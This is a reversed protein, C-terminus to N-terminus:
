PTLQPGLPKGNVLLTGKDLKFEGSLFQGDRVVYGSDVVQGLMAELMAKDQAQRQPQSDIMFKEIWALPVKAQGNAYAKTFLVTRLDPSNAEEATVGQTGFATSLSGLVGDMEIDFKDISFEPNHPLLAAMSAQTQELVAEPTAQSECMAAPTGAQQMWQVYSPVHLRKLATTLHIKTLKADNAQGQATVTAVRTLLDQNEVTTLSDGKVDRLMFTSPKGSGKPTVLMDLQDIALTSRGIMLWVPRVGDGEGEGQSTLRGIKIRTDADEGNREALLGPWAFDYSMTGRGSLAGKIRLDFGQSVFRGQGQGADKFDLTPTTIHSTLGGFLGVQTRANVLAQREPVNQLVERFEPPMMVETDVALWGIRTFGPFPGHQIHQRVTWTKGESEECGIVVVVTQVSSFLGKDYTSETVQVPLTSLWTTVGAQMRQEAVHGSWAAGGVVVAAALAVAGVVGIATKNM